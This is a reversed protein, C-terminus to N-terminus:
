TESREYGGQVMGNLLQIDEDSRDNKRWDPDKVGDMHIPDTNAVVFFTDRFGYQELVPIAVDCDM